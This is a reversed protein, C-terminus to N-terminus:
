PLELIGLVPVQEVDAAAPEPPGGFEALAFRFAITHPFTDDLNYAQLTLALPEGVLDWNESWAVLLGDSSITGGPNSPWVQHLSHLISVHVLGACGRPFQIEVRHINGPVLEVVSTVPATALTLAPVTLNFDYYM